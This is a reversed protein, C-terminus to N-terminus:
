YARRVTEWAGAYETPSYVTDMKSLYLAGDTYVMYEGAHYMDHAGTPQVWPRATEQTTGHLPRNFTYWASNGPKIDPYVANDYAAYCEWVQGNACYVDGVAHEGASWDQILASIRLRDNDGTVSTVAIMTADRIAQAQAVLDDRM